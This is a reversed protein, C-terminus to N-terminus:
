LNNNKLYSKINNIQHNKNNMKNIKIIKKLLNKIMIKLILSHLLLNFKIYHHVKFIIIAVIKGSKWNVQNFLIIIIKNM